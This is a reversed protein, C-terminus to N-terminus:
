GHTPQANFMASRFAIKFGSLRTHRVFTRVHHFPGRFVFSRDPADAFWPFRKNM